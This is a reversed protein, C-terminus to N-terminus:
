GGVSLTYAARLQEYVGTLFDAQRDLKGGEPSDGVYGAADARISSIEDYLADCVAKIPMQVGYRQILQGHLRALEKVEDVDSTRSSRNRIMAHM